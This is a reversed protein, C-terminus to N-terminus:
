NHWSARLCRSYAAVLACPSAGEAAGIVALEEAHASVAALGIAAGSFLARTWARFSSM